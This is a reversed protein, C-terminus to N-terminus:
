HGKEAGSKNVSLVVAGSVNLVSCGATIYCHLMNYTSNWRTAVDHPM